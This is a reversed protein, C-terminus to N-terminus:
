SFCCCIFKMGASRLYDFRTSAFDFLVLTIRNSPSFRTALFSIFLIFIFCSDRISYLIIYIKVRLWDFGPSTVLCTSNHFRWEMREEERTWSTALVWIFSFLLPRPELNFCSLSFLPTDVVDLLGRRCLSAPLSVCSSATDVCLCQFCVAFWSM